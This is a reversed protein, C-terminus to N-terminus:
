IANGYILKYDGGWPWRMDSTMEGRASADPRRHQPPVPDDHRRHQRQHPVEEVPLGRLTEAREPQRGPDARPHPQRGRPFGRRPGLADVRDAPPGAGGRRVAQAGAHLQRRLLPGRRDRRGGRGPQRPDGPRNGQHGAAGGGAALRGRGAAVPVTRYMREDLRGHGREETEFDRYKLGEVDGECSALFQREVADYLTKQNGTVALVFDGGDAVVAEAIEGQGGMADITTLADKAAVQEPLLPTATIEDSKAAGAVRGLALGEEGAWASVIHPAGLGTGADHSRRCPKGATGILRQQGPPRQAFAQPSRLGFRKQFAAPEVHVLVRRIGDRSPIGDALSLFGGLWERRHVAIRRIATPGAAGCLTGVVAVVIVGVLRHKRNREHRPDALSEFFAGGNEIDVMRAM